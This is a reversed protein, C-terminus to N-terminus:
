RDKKYLNEIQKNIERKKNLSSELDGVIKQKRMKESKNREDFIKKIVRQPLFYMPYKSELEEWLSYNLPDKAESTSPLKKIVNRFGEGKEELWASIKAITGHSVHFNRQIERYDNGELLLKAIRLRRSLIELEKKTLLDGLFTVVEDINKCLLFGNILDLIIRQREKESNSFNKM